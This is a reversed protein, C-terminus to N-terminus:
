RTVVIAGSIMLAIGLWVRPSAAEHLVLVSLIVTMVLSLKDVTAVRAVPGIKLAYFYCLWSLGTAVGSLGLFLWTSQSLGGITGFRGQAAVIGWAFLLIVTTRIATAVNSDVGAIGIKALIATLSAFVASGIAPLIWANQM